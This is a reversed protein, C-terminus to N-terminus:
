TQHSDVAAVAKHNLRRQKAAAPMPEVRTETFDRAQSSQVLHPRLQLPDVGDAPQTRRQPKTANIKPKNPLPL